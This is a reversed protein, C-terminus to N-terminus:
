ARLFGAEIAKLLKRFEDKTIGKVNIIINDHDISVRNEMTLDM